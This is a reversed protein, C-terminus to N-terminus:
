PAPAAVNVILAVEAGGPRPSAILTYAGAPAVGSLMLDGNREERRAGPGVRAAYLDVAARPAASTSFRVFRVRCGPADRGAAELVRAGPPVAFAPPLRGAWAPGTAFAGDCRAAPQLIPPEGDLPPYTVQVPGPTARVRMTDDQIALARDALIPDSLADIIAPDTTEARLRDRRALEDPSPGRDCAALLLFLFLLPRATVARRYCSGRVAANGPM